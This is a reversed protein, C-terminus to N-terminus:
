PKKVQADTTAVVLASPKFIITRNKPLLRIEVETTEGGTVTLQYNEKELNFRPDINNKYVRLTWEGPRVRPFEFEGSANTLIRITELGDHLDLVV